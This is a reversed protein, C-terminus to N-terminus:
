REGMDHTKNLMLNTSEDPDNEREKPVSELEKLLDM